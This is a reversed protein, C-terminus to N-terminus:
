GYHGLQEAPKIWHQLRWVLSTVATSLGAYCTAHLNQLGSEWHGSRVLWPSIYCRPQHLFHEQFSHCNPKWTCKLGSPRQGAASSCYWWISICDITFKSRTIFPVYARLAETLVFMFFCCKSGKPTWLSALIPYAAWAKFLLYGGKLVMGMECGPFCLCLPTLHCMSHDCFLAPATSSISSLPIREWGQAVTQGSM